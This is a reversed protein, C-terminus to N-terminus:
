RINIKVNAAGYINIIINKTANPLSNIFYSNCFDSYSYCDFGIQVEDDYFVIPTGDSLTYMKGIIYSKVSKNYNKYNALFKAAKAFEDSDKLPKITIIDDIISKPTSTSKKIIYDDDILYNNKKIVDSLIIDDLIKSYNSSGNNYNKNNKKSGNFIYTKTM